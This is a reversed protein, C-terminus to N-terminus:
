PTKDFVHPLPPAFDADSHRQFRRWAADSSQDDPATQRQRGDAQREAARDRPCAAPRHGGEQVPHRRDVRGRDRGDPASGPPTAVSAHLTGATRAARTSGIAIRAGATARSGGIRKM